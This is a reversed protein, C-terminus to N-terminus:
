SSSASSSTAHCTVNQRDFRVSVLDPDRPATRVLALRRAGAGDGIRLAEDLEGALAHPRVALSGHLHRQVDVAIPRPRHRLVEDLGPMVREARCRVITLVPQHADLLLDEPRPRSGPPPPGDGPGLQGGFRSLAARVREPHDLDQECDGQAIQPLMQLYQYALLKQDADGRHIAEFVTEIAKSQGEAELMQAERQGEAKLIASQKEGEATLIQSQKVGEATLIAARKDREARM